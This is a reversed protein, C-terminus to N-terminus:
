RRAIQGFGIHRVTLFLMVHRVELNPLLFLFSPLEKLRNYGLDLEKLGVLKGIAPPVVEILNHHLPLKTLKTMLGIGPPIETLQNNHL